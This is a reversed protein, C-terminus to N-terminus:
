QRPYCVQVDFARAATGWAHIYSWSYRTVHENYIVVVTMANKTNM